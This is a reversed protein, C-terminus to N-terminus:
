VSSRDASMSPGEGIRALIRNRLETRFQDKKDTEWVIHAYQRTDFHLKDVMDERCTYIVPIDLGYAFGAEFYVGGRAGEDGHTFDAVIFRSRRIEAIIEDDIKNVDPKEDIRLPSYGAEEIAPRFGAEYIEGMSEDFWMAIFAQSSDLKTVQDAVRSYGDVTVTGNFQIPSLNGRIWNQELLYNLCYAVEDWLTSESWAYVGPHSTPSIQLYAGVIESRKALYRLLRDTREHVPLPPRRRAHNAAGTTVEPSESGRLRQDLLWTTLRAKEDDNLENVTKEAERTISYRGGARPSDVTMVESKRSLGIVIADSGWIFCLRVSGRSM